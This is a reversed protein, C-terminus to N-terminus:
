QFKNVAPWPDFASKTPESEPVVIEYRYKHTWPWDKCLFCSSTWRLLKSPFRGNQRRWSPRKFLYGCIIILGSDPAASSFVPFWNWLGRFLTELAYQKIVYQYKPILLSSRSSFLSTTCSNVPCCDTEMIATIGTSLKSTVPLHAPSFRQYRPHIPDPVSWRSNRLCFKVLKKWFIWFPWVM